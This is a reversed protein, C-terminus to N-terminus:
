RKERPASPPLQALESSKRLEPLERRAAHDDLGALRGVGEVQDEAALRAHESLWSRTQQSDAVVEPFHAQDITLRPRGGDNGSVLKLHHSKRPPREQPKDFM